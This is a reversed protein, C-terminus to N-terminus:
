QSAGKNQYARGCTGDFNDIAKWVPSGSQFTVSNAVTVSNTTYNIGSTAIRVPVADTVTSTTTPGIAICDGYETHFSGFSHGNFGWDDKFPRATALPVVTVSVGAGTTTTLAANDGIGATSTTSLILGERDQGPSTTGNAWILTLNRNSFFNSPWTSSDTLAKLAAGTGTLSVQMNVSPAAPDVGFINSFIKAGKWANTFSGLPVNGYKATFAYIDAGGAAGPQAGQFLNDAVIVNQCISTSIGSPFTTGDIHLPAGGWLTNNYITQEGDRYATTANDETACWDLLYNHYNGYVYNKRFIIGLGRLRIANNWVPHTPTLGSNTFDSDEYLQPGYPSCGFGGDSCDNPVAGLTQSGTYTASNTLDSWINNIKVRRFITFAGTVKAASAGSHDFTTDEVLVHDANSRFLIGSDNPNTPAQNDNTGHLSLADQRLYIYDSANDLENANTSFAGHATLNFLGINKSAILNITRANIYCNTPPTFDAASAAHACTTLWASSDALVLGGQGTSNGQINVFQTSTLNLLGETGTTAVSLLISDGDRVRLTKPSGEIGLVSALKIQAAWTETSGDSVSSRMECVQGNAIAGMCSTIGATTNAYDCGSICITKNATGRVPPGTAGTSSTNSCSLRFGNTERIHVKGQGTRDVATDQWGGTGSNWLWSLTTLDVPMKYSGDSNITINACTSGSTFTMASFELQANDTIDNAADGFRNPAGFADVTFPQLLTGLDFYCKGVPATVSVDRQTSTGANTIVKVSRSGYRCNGLVATFTISTDGWATVTEPCTNSGDIISVSGTGQAAGFGTGTIVLGVATATFTNTTNVDTITPAVASSIVAAAVGRCALSVANTVTYTGSALTSNLPYIYYSFLMTEDSSGSFGDVSVNAAGTAFGAPAVTSASYTVLGAISSFSMVITGYSTITLSPQPPSTTCSNSTTNTANIGSITAPGGRFAVMQAQGVGVLTTSPASEGGSDIKCDIAMVDHGTVQSAVIQTYGAPQALTNATNRERGYWCLWDGAQHGTPLAPSIAGSNAGVATGYGVLSWVGGGGGGGTGSPQLALVIGTNSQATAPTPTIALDQQSIATKTTQIWTGTATLLDASAYYTDTRETFSTPTALSTGAGPAKARLSYFLMESDQTPTLAGIRVATLTTRKVSTVDVISTLDTSTGSFRSCSGTLYGSPSTLTFTDSGTAIRAWIKHFTYTVGSALETYSAGSPTPLTYNPNYHAATCLILDGVSGAPIAFSVTSSTSSVAGTGIYVIAAHATSACLLLLALLRKM